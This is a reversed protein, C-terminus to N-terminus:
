KPILKRYFRPEGYQEILVDLALEGEARMVNHTEPGSFIAVYEPWWVVDGPQASESEVETFEDSSPFEHASIYEYSMGVRAYIFWVFRAGDKNEEATFPLQGAPQPVTDQAVLRDARLASLLIIVFIISRM